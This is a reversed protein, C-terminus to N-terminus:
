EPIYYDITRIVGTRTRREVFCAAEEREEENTFLFAGDQCTGIPLNLDMVMDKIQRRVDDSNTGNPPFGLNNALDAIHIANNRGVSNVKLYEWIQQEEKNM